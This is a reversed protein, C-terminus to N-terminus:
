ITVCLRISGVVGSREPANLRARPLHGSSDNLDGGGMISIEHSMRDRNEDVWHEHLQAGFGLCFIPSQLLNVGKPVAEEEFAESPKDFCGHHSGVFHLEPHWHCLRDVAGASWEQVAPFDM